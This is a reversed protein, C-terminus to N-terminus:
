GRSFIVNEVLDTCTHPEKIPEFCEHLVGLAVSLKSYNESLAEVDHSDPTMPKLLTWSLTGEGVPSPKGLTEQLGLFIQM